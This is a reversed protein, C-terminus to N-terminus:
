LPRYHCVGPPTKIIVDPIIDSHHRSLTRIFDVCLTLAVDFCRCWANPMTGAVSMDFQYSICMSFDIRAVLQAGLSGSEIIIWCLMELVLHTEHHQDM